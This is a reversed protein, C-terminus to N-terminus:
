STHRRLAAEEWYLGTDLCCLGDTLTVAEKRQTKTDSHPLNVVRDTSQGFGRVVAHEFPENTPDVPGQVGRQRALVEYSDQVDCAKLDKLHTSSYQLWKEYGTM